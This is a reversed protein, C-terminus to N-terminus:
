GIVQSETAARGPRPSQTPHLTFKVAKEKQIDLVTAHIQDHFCIITVKSSSNVHINLASLTFM